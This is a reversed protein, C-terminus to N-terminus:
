YYKEKIKSFSITKTRSINARQLRKQAKESLVLGFDPDNLVKNVAQTIFIKIERNLLKPITATPM